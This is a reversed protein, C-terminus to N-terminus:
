WTGHPRPRSRLLPEHHHTQNAKIGADTVHGCLMCHWGSIWNTSGEVDEMDIKVMLGQCRACSM